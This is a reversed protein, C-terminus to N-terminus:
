KAAAYESEPHAALAEKVAEEDKLIIDATIRELYRRAALRAEPAFKKDPDFYLMLNNACAQLTATARGLAAQTEPTLGPPNAEAITRPTIPKGVARMAAIAADKALYQQYESRVLLYLAEMASVQIAAQDNFNGIINLLTKEYDEHSRRIRDQFFDGFLSKPALGTASRRILFQRLVPDRSLDGVYQSLMSVDEDSTFLLPYYELTRTINGEVAQNAIEPKLNPTRRAARAAENTARLLDAAKLHELSDFVFDRPPPFKSAANVREQARRAMEQRLIEDIHKWYNTIKKEDPPFPRSPAGTVGAKPPEAGPIGPASPAGPHPAAPSVVPPAPSTAAAPPEAPQAMVCAVWFAVYTIGM